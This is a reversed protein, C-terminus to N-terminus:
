EQKSNSPMRFSEPSAPLVDDILRKVVRKYNVETLDYLSILNFLLDDFSTFSKEIGIECQGGSDYGYWNVDGDFCWTNVNQYISLDMSLSHIDNDIIQTLESNFYFDITNNGQEKDASYIRLYYDVNKFVSSKELEINLELMRCDLQSLINLFKNM